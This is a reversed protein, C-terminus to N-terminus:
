KIKTTLLNLIYRSKKPPLACVIKFLINKLSFPNYKLARNYYYKAKDFKNSYFFMNGLKRYHLAMVSSSSNEIIYNEHKTIIYEIACSENYYNSTQSKNSLNWQFMCENVNDVRPNAMSVSIFFDWDESPEARFDFKDINQLIFNRNFLCCQFFPGPNIVINKKFDRSFDKLSKEYQINDIMDNILYDSMIFDLNKADMLDLQKKLKGGLWVDDDDLFGIYKGSSQKIGEIRSLTAGVNKPQKFYKIKSNNIEKIKFDTNDTSADDIVIIEIDDVNQSLVSAVTTMLQNSNNYTPIVVSIM